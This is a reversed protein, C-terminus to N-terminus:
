FGQEFKYCKIVEGTAVARRIDAVPVSTFLHAEELSYCMRIIAGTEPMVVNVEEPEANYEGYCAYRRLNLNTLADVWELNGVYNNKRNGDIHNVSYKEPDSRPKWAMAVARHIKMDKHEGNKCLVCRLYGDKDPRPKLHRRYYQSFVRGYNSVSYYGEYGPVSRYKEKEV